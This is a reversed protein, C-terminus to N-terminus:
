EDKRQFGGGVDAARADLLPLLRGGVTPVKLDAKLFRAVDISLEGRPELCRVLERSRTRSM